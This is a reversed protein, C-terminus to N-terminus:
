MCLQEICNIFAHIDKLFNNETAMTNRDTTLISITLKIGQLDNKQTTREQVQLLWYQRLILM